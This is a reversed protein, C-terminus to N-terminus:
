GGNARGRASGSSRRPWFACRTFATATRPEVPLPSRSSRAPNPLIIMPWLRGSGFPDGRPVLEYSGDTVDLV